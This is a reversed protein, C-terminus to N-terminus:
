LSSRRAVLSSRRAVLSSRRAVLSSRRAVLSSRRAVLSSRRAVLSSRRAVVNVTEAAAPQVPLAGDGRRDDEGVVAVEGRQRAGGRFGHRVGHDGAVGAEVAQGGTKWQPLPIAAREARVWVGRDDGEGGGPARVRQEATVGLEDVGGEGFEGEFVVDDGRDDM